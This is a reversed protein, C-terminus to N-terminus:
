PADEIDPAGAPLDAEAEADARDAEVDVEKGERVAPTSPGEIEGNLAVRRAERENSLREVESQASRDRVMQVVVRQEGGERLDSADSRAREQKEVGGSVVGPPQGPREPAEVAAAMRTGLLPEAPNQLAEEVRPGDGTEGDEM